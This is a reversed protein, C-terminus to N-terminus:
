SLPPTPPGPPTPTFRRVWGLAAMRAFDSDLSWLSGDHEAALAGILLDAFGFREGAAAARELWADILTWTRAAPYAIPLASLLRRLRVRDRAAAGALIEVRVPAALAVEDLDLLHRLNAAEPGGAARLAAVWVSTDVFIV